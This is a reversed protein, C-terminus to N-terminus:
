AFFRGPLNPESGFAKARETRGRVAGRGRLGFRYEDGRLGVEVHDQVLEALVLGVDHDYIGNLHDIAGIQGADWAAGRLKTVTRRPQDPESLLHSERQNKDSMDGFFAGDGPGLHEFVDDIAHNI